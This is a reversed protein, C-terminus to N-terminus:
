EFVLNNVIAHLKLNRKETGETSRSIERSKAVLKIGFELLQIVTGTLSM